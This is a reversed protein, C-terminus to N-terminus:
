AQGSQPKLKGSSVGLINENLLGIPAQGVQVPIPYKIFISSSKIIGSLFLVKYSPTLAKPELVMFFPSVM